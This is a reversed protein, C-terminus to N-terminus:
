KKNQSGLTAKGSIHKKSPFSLVMTATDADHSLEWSLDVGKATKTDGPVKRTATVDEGHIFNEGNPGTINLVEQGLLHRKKDYYQLTAKVLIYTGAPNDPFQVSIAVSSPQTKNLTVHWTVKSDAASCAVPLSVSAALVCFITLLLFFSKYM